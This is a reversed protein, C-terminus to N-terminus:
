WACGLGRTRLWGRQLYLTTASGDGVILRQFNYSSNRDAISGLEHRETNYLTDEDEAISRQEQWEALMQEYLGRYLLIYQTLPAHHRGVLHESWWQPEKTAGVQRGVHWPSVFRASLSPYHDNEM